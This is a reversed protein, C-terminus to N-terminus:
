AAVAEETAFAMNIIAAGEQQRTADTNPIQKARRRRAHSVVM